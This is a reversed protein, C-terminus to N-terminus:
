NEKRSIRIRGKENVKNDKATYMKGFKQNMLRLCATCYNGFSIPAGCRACPVCHAGMIRKNDEGIYEIRGEKIWKTIKSQPIGFVESLKFETVNHTRIYDKVELFLAGEECGPCFKEKYDQPLLRGCVVCQKYNGFEHEM